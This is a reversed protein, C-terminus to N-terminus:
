SIREGKACNIATTRPSFFGLKTGSLSVEIEGQDTFRIANRILNLVVQQLRHEDGLVFAPVDEAARVGLRLGKEKASPQLMEAARNVLEGPSFPARNLELETNELRSFDLMDEILQLLTQSATELSTVFETLESEPLEDKLIGASGVIVALPTRIEHSVTAMFQSKLRSSELATDRAHEASRQAAVLEENVQGLRRGMETISDATTQLEQVQMTPSSHAYRGASIKQVLDGIASLPTEIEEAMVRSRRYLWGFFVLHFVILGLMMLAGIEFLRDGLANSPAYIAGLPAFVLLKWGTTEVTSWSLLQASKSDIAGSGATEAMIQSSIVSLETRKTIDFDSPKYTDKLVYDEYHHTTLERLEFEQEAAPPMALITGTRSVLVAYGDWPVDLDTLRDAITSITVDLGVVAELTEDRYAPAIASTMWGQGAPDVYAETWVVKREPNHELDAEFYFNYSPLDMKPPYQTAVEFYPYIRNLSDHTNFYIQTVTPFSGKIDRMLPDLQATSFAKEREAKGVPVAGSYFAAAGGDQTTAFSVGDHVYAYRAREADGPDHPTVFALESQKRFMDTASAIAGLESDIARASLEALQRLENDAVARISRLNEDLSFRNALVYVGLIVLEVCVLPLLASRAYRGWIWSLLSVRKQAM